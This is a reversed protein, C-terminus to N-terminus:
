SFFDGPYKELGRSTRITQMGSKTNYILLDQPIEMIFRSLISSARAGLYLRKRTYTLHL